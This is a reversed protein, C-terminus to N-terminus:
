RSSSSTERSPRRLGAEGDELAGDLAGDAQRLSALRKRTSPHTATDGYAGMQLFAAFADDSSRGLRRITRLAFADAEFEQQYALVSADHGLLAAVSDSRSQLLEGPLWSQYLNSMQGWHGLSVHGLEHALVFLREGEGLQGLSENAVIVQGRLTQALVPGTVIRLEVGQDPAAVRMLADFSRQVRLSAASKPDAETFGELQVQQSRDLVEGIGVGWATRACLALMTVFLTLLLRRM